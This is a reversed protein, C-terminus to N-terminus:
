RRSRSGMSRVSRISSARGVDPVRQPQTGVAQTGHVADDVLLAAPQMSAPQLDADAASAAELRAITAVALPLIAVAVFRAARHRALPSV